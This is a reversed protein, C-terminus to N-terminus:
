CKYFRRNSNDFRSKKPGFLQFLSASLSIGECILLKMGSEVAKESKLQLILLRLKWGEAKLPEQDELIKAWCLFSKESITRGLQQLAFKKKM